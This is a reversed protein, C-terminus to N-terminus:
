RDSPRGFTDYSEKMRKILTQYLYSEYYTAQLNNKIENPNPKTVNAIIRYLSVGLYAKHRTYFPVNSAKMAELFIRDAQKRSIKKKGTPTDVELFECLKDHVAVANAYPGWPPLSAWLLRSNSAGDTLYGEEVDVYSKDKDNLYYRIPLVVRWYDKELVTSAEKDYVIILDGSFQGVSM